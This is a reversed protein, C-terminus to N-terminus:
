RCAPTAAVPQTLRIGPVAAAGEGVARPARGDFSANLALVGTGPARLELTLLHNGAPLSLIEGRSSRTRQVETRLQEKRDVLFRADGESVLQFPISLARDLHLCTEWRTSAFTGVLDGGLYDHSSDWEVSARREGRTVVTGGFDPEGFYQARWSPGPDRLLAWAFCLPAPLVALLTMWRTVRRAPTACSAVARSGPPPRDVSPVPVASV